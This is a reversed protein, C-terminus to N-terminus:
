RAGGRRRRVPVALLVTLLGVVGQLALWPARDAPAYEVTLRGGDAGLEFTQRWDASVSRLPRGDLSAHWGPEAREALVLLRGSDGAPVDTDVALREAAVPVEDPASGGTAPSVLRAWAPASTAGPVAGLPPSVRWIVGSENETIRELGATADLRGVLQAGAVSTRADDSPVLVAAVALRSLEGSVDGPAGAALRAVLDVLLGEPTGDAEGTEVGPEAALSRVRSAVAEDTLQPGDARFLQFRVMSNASSGPADDEVGLALVRSRDPSVQAQQGVAPVVVGDRGVVQGAGAAGAELTRARVGWEALPVLPATVAVVTLVAVGVQRWGFDHRAMRTRMGDAGLVAAALLGLLVLSVGAGPWGRVAFDDGAAVDVRAVLVAAALGCAAVAWGARVGRAVRPGRLLALLALVVLVGGGLLPAVQAVTPGALDVLATTPEVPWGLLQQWAPAATSAVPVGPDALLLRLGSLASRGPLDFGSAATAVLPGALTVAPLAVLVLLRRRRRAVLAVAGLALLGAPLLVPAGAVALAFALGAGAAAAVSSTPPPIRFTDAADPDHQDAAPKAEGDTEVANGAADRPVRRADVLGSVVVDQRQVGLARAVGLAAWPLAVHAVVAGLRGGDLALGLAPAAVWVVAAWLRAAVSRTAAGAAFWAGLGALVLSGVLLVAVAGATSGGTLVAFPVLATLLPEAPGPSGLGAGVWGSTAARWLEGLDAQAPLLAGGTLPEGRLVAQLLDGLVVATLAVLVVGLGALGARRRTALAALERLELESPARGVRRQEARTLHRDRQERVVERWTTQLPRLSRRPLRAVRRAHGRARAMRGPHLLAAVPAAIEAAALPLEKMAIRVLARVVGAALFGLGLFPLLVVPAAALRAHVQARRRAAFSRRPDGADHRADAVDGGAGGGFERVGRYTAQAHRVVASPVVVVRHGALRARRSLDLGDGFPGLMPDTGGLAQWVDFRVLAGALGVGLVDDRGDHQGQDVEGEDVGTMRRGLRSTTVGVELLRTPDDWSRQKAGAVAVSPAHEVARVLEALATPEPASDDHLLWLWAPEGPATSSGAVAARVAHGFTRAGPVRLVRVTAQVSALLDAVLPTVDDAVPVAPSGAAQAAADVVVVEAPARTQSALAALTHELYRTRGRTVLVALVPRGSPAELRAPPDLTLLTETM